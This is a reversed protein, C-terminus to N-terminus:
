SDAVRAIALPVVPMTAAIDASEGSKRAATGSAKRSGTLNSAIATDAAISIDSQKSMQRFYLCRFSQAHFSAVLDFDIVNGAVSAPRNRPHELVDQPTRNAVFNDVHFDQVILKGGRRNEAPPFLGHRPYVLKNVGVFHYCNGKVFNDTKQQQNHRQDRGCQAPDNAM